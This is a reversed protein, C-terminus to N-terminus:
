CCSLGRGGSVGVKTLISFTVNPGHKEALELASEYMKMFHRPCLNPQFLPGLIDANDSDVLLLNLLNSAQQPDQQVFTQPPSSPCLV